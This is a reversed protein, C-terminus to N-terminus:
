GIGHALSLTCLRSPIIRWTMDRREYERARRLNELTVVTVGEIHNEIFFSGTATLWRSWYSREICPGCPPTRDRPWRLPLIMTAFRLCQAPTKRCQRM